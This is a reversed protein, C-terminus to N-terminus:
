PPTQVLDWDQQASSPTLICQDAFAVLLTIYLKFYYWMPGILQLCKVSILMVVSINYWMVSLLCYNAHDTQTPKQETTNLRRFNM